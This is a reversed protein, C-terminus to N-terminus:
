NQLIKQYDIGSKILAASKQIDKDMSSNNELMGEEYYYRTVVEQQLLQLIREKNARLIAEKNSSILEKLQLLDEEIAEEYTEKRVIKEFSALAQETNTSFSYDKDKLFLIFDEFDQDKLAFVEAAPINEHKTRYQTAFDFFLLQQKLSNQISKFNMWVTPIDPAIGGGDYVTRGGQTEFATRLSDAIPVPVGDKYKSSQICRGSPVYYRATTLKLKAGHSLDRTNQVLGKGFSREGLIVGRDLDQIAGAVIESASASTNDILVVLPSEIDVPINQTRFTQHKAKDKGKIQVIVEGQPIFVNAVSVAETLLGGSNGRLDLIIGEIKTGRNLTKLAEAVYEGANESFSTLVIYAINGDVIGAYPVCPVQIEQRTLIKKITEKSEKRQVEISVETGPIGRMVSSVEQTTRGKMPQGDAGVVLDGARLGAKAAAGGKYIELIEVYDSRRIISAGVGGYHGALSSRFEAVEDAPIYVTYPDLSRLMADMGSTMLKEPDVEDAYYTNLEKYVNSYIELNKAMEFDDTLTTSLGGWAIAFFVAIYALPRWKINKIQM